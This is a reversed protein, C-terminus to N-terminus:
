RETAASRQLASYEEIKENLVRMARTVLADPDRLEIGLLERLLDDPPADFGNQMLKQFRQAFAGPDAKYLDYYVLALVGGWVYNINYFPDQYMLVTTMWRSKLENNMRPWISYRSYVDLTLADLRDASLHEGSQEVAYIAQELEAEPAAVFAITGKGELFQELYYERERASSAAKALHDALLLESLTAFSEFLYKPGDAYLASVGSETMLQRHVAHTAEHTLVRMDNYAGRYGETYFVSDVGVYGLSFGGPSRGDGPAIDLRGNRPDLLLAMARGFTEGLPALAARIKASAEEIPVFPEELASLSGEVDWVNAQKLGHLARAKDARVRQYRKYSDAHRAVASLLRDVDARTWYSEFYKAEADDAFGHMRARENRAQALKSLAFAYLDRQSDYAAMRRRFGSERVTADPHRAIARRDRQVNLPGAATDVVGFTTRGLLTRYLPYQWGVAWPAQSELLEEQALPLTHDRSRRADEIAFRYKALTPSRKIFEDLTTADISALENRLFATRAAYEAGLAANASSSARDEADIAARLYLYNEHRIYSIRIDEYASLAALLADPSAAIKGKFRELEALRARFQARESEEKEPSQFFHRALDVHYLSRQASPIAESAAYAAHSASTLIALALVRMILISQKM